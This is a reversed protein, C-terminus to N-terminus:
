QRELTLVLDTDEPRLVLRDRKEDYAYKFVIDSEFLTVERDKPDVAVSEVEFRPLNFTATEDYTETDLHFALLDGKRIDITAPTFIPSPRHNDRVKAIKWRGFVPALDDANRCQYSRCTAIQQVSLGSESEDIKGSLIASMEAILEDEREFEDMDLATLRDHFQQTLGMARRLDGGFMNAQAVSRLVGFEDVLMHAKSLAPAPDNESPMVALVSKHKEGTKAESYALAVNALAKGEDVDGSLTMFIGGGKSSLFVSPIVLEVGGDRRYKLDEGPVGYIQDITVNSKPTIRIKLDHAVESVLFDFDTGFTAVVDEEKTVYFLNGGRAASIRNALDAAFHDAVGITTLGIGRNSAEVAMGIFSESDTQGVNPQEDTFLIVRTAGDFGAQADFATDYALRLGEEMYTSGSSFISDIADSITERGTAVDTVPIVLDTTSGYQVVGMRDGPRLHKLTEQMSAKALDLPEGGMSGSKDVVAVITLAEREWTAPDINTAFGLGMLLDADPETLLDAPMTQAVLCFLQDCAQDPELFLNYTSLLGESTIAGPAPIASEDIVTDRFFAIDQAGGQTVHIRAGTVIVEDDDIDQAAASLSLSVGLITGAMLSKLFKNQM